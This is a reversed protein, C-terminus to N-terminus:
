GPRGDARPTLYIWGLRALWPLLAALWGLAAVAQWAWTDPAIEAAIRVLAVLQILAFALWAVAPMRLPRGSHGQTVRTVMAVLLSGMFGVAVAHTPARGLAFVDTAAFWVSQATFLAFGVPLWAFGIFLVRLLGPAPGRPWIRWLMWAALATLPADALWLWAYGHMLELLLHLAVLAWFAALVWMPRWPRYGPVVNAAFFPLMRHCVTFYVPLLYGMIALKYAAFALGAAAPRHLWLAFLVLGLLGLGVAVLASVAHWTRGDERWLVGFLVCWGATWGAICVVLGLHLLHPFGWLGALTLAHGSVLCLGVPVYHWVTLDPQRTWRPFVTLLFGFIFPTFVQFGMTLAHGWGPPIPSQPLPLWQWRMAVLWAAWWAMAATLNLAGVFFLLRHPAAALLRPSPRLASHPADM